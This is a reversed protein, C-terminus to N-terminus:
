RLTATIIAIDDEKDEGCTALLHDCLNEPGAPASLASGRLNELCVEIDLDREEVLGDTIMVLRTGPPTDVATPPPHPLQLGLLPGHPTHFHAAGDPGILLPPIHGANAIHVRRAGPEILVICLTVTIAPHSVALLTELRDLIHDPRHGECAYARLAHRVEGMITAAALSHGAVDGIALLLGNGTQLAEYFDGGVEANQSAPLYRFALDVDEAAPLSDPLLSRQLALALAHEENYTRLAELALACAHAFQQVLREDDAGTVAGAPVALCVPPRGHKTRAVALVLDGTLRAAPLLSRWRAQPMTVIVAGTGDGLGHAAVQELVDETVPNADARAGPAAVMSHVAQGQPSLFVASAACGLLAAAGGTAAAAFSHFGIASYVALTAQNLAMLRTTLREARQRARAYRLTATVTALLEAPDVPQDLYADAGRHLGEAHDESSIAAASIQIVPMAATEPDRKIRESVEFGSMDPLCVDIIAIDPTGAALLALGEGANGAELVTHGSRRLWSALVYRNTENDDIVLITAPATDQTGDM